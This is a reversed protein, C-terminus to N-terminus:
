IWDMKTLLSKIAKYVLFTVFCNIGAKILNFPIIATPLLAIVAEKPMGYFIPSLIVNALAMVVVMSIAAGVLAIISGKFTRIKGYILSAVVVLTGTAILHMIFGFPGDKANFILFQLLAVVVTMALGYVPGLVFSAILIPIDGPEYILYPASPIIPFRLIAVLALSLACLIGAVAMKKLNTKKM